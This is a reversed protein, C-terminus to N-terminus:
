EELNKPSLENAKKNKFSFIKNKFYNCFFILSYNSMLLVYQEYKNPSYFKM